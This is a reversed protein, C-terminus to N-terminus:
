ARADLRGGRDFLWFLAFTLAVLVLAVGAAAEARYAAMLRQMLLPLTAVEPPAFLAIVGLDGMSLAAALGAAFGAPRRLRAWTVLRFRPWGEIGLSDALRGDATRTAGLAPLVARLVFPLAMAANVAATVPLALAFPDAVPFLVIFLGTGIVFPSAALTLLAFAELARGRGRSRRADILTALALGLCLALAASALAVGLSRVAAPWVAAPLGSALAALGRAAVAALPLGVFLALAVLVAGDLARSAPRDADWRRVSGALGPGFAPEAAFRLALAAVTGCIAFQILALWAARGLDFDFRIAQYIALEVTTARPGGGLTLAVAFSTMCLLFVLVFAGPLVARLMPAEIRRAIDRPAFGLQAALRFTEAPIALWGQLVLRTCLPLNFFVHALVVGTLGYLDLGPAGAAELGRSVLGARGWIAVLGFVAVIAPLLFPAGLLAVLAARGPFRRRALARAAPVALTVSLITSLLAQAVTFRLASWEAPGLGRGPDARLVLAALPGLTLAAVLALAVGGGAAAALGVGRRKATVFTPHPYGDVM